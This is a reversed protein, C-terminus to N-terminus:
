YGIKVVLSNDTIRFGRLHAGALQEVRSNADFQYLEISGLLPTIASGIIGVVEEHRGEPMDKINVKHVKVKDFGIAKRDAIYALEGSVLAKGKLPILGLARITVDVDVELRNESGKFILEPNTLTVTMLGGKEVPFKQKVRSIVQNKPLEIEFSRGCGPLLVLVSALFASTLLISKM